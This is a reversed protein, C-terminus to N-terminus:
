GWIVVPSIFFPFPRVLTKIFSDPGVYGSWPSLSALYSSPPSYTRGKTAVGSPTTSRSSTRSAAKEGELHQTTGKSNDVFEGDVEDQERVYVTEPVVFFILLLAIGHVIAVLWECWRYGLESDIVYGNM